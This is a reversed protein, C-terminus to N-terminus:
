KMNFVYKKLYDEFLNLDLNILEETTHDKSILRLVEGGLFYGVDSYGEFNSWDGFFNQCSKNNECNRLYEQAIKQKNECCWNLWGNKDQHYFRSDNMLMQEFYMAMGETYLQWLSKQKSTHFVNPAIRNQFHWAHGLEHYILGNMGTDDCWNLEVIKEVGLLIVPKKDLKTVWGAGSCLGMYFIVTIDVKDLLLNNKACLNTARLFSDHAADAAEKHHLFYKIVPLIEKEFDYDKTDERVLDWLSPSINSAYIKYQDLDFSETKFFFKYKAIPIM